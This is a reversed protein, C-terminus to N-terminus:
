VFSTAGASSVAGMERENNRRLTMLEVIRSHSASRERMRPRQAPALTAVGAV